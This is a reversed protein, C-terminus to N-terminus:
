KEWKIILESETSLSYKVFVTMCDNHIFTLFNGRSLIFDFTKCFWFFFLSLKEKGNKNKQKMKENCYEQTYKGVCVPM